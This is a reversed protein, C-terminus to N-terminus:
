VAVPAPLGRLPSVAGYLLLARIAALTTEVQYPEGDEALWSGDPRALDHLRAIGRVATPLDRPVGAAGLCGLMGALAGAHWREDSVRALADLARAASEAGPGDMLRFVSAALWTTQLFGLLRGDPAQRARLYVVARHVADDRWGSRLSWYAALATARCRVRRDGPLLHPPPAYRLLGPPEDWAGDPRQVSFLYTCAREVHPSAGLGLDWLWELTTVTADITSLRGAVMGHPFGGDDNQRAEIARIIKTDPRPRGLVGRLRAREADSGNQDVYAVSRRWDFPVASRPTLDVM